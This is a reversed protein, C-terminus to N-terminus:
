KHVGYAHGCAYCSPFYGQYVGCYSPCSCVTCRFGTMSTGEAIATSDMDETLQIAEAENFEAVAETVEETVEETIEKASDSLANAADKKGCSSFALGCALACIVFLKKKM